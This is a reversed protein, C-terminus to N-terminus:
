ANESAIKVNSFLMILIALHGQYLCALIKLIVFVLLCILLYPFLVCFLSTNIICCYCFYYLLINTLNDDKRMAQKYLTEWYFDMLLILWLCSYIGVSVLEFCEITWQSQLKPTFVQQPFVQKHQVPTSQGRYTQKVQWKVIYFHNDCCYVIDAVWTPM